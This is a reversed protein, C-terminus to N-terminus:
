TFFAARVKGETACVDETMGVLSRLSRYPPVQQKGVGLM